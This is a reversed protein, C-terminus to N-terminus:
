FLIGGGSAVAPNYCQKPKTTEKQGKQKTKMKHKIEGNYNLKLPFLCLSEM